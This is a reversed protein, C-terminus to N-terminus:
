TIVCSNMIETQRKYMEIFSLDDENLSPNEYKRHLYPPLFIELLVSIRTEASENRSIQIKLAEMPNIRHIFGNRPNLTVNAIDLDICITGSLIM